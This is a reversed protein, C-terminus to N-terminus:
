SHDTGGKGRPFALAGLAYLLAAGMFVWRYGGLAAALAALPTAIVSFAGNIGWAWPLFAPSRGGFWSLGQPFPMGLALSPLAAVLVVLLRKAGPAWSLTASFLPMLGWSLLIVLACAGAAAAPAGRRPDSFAKEALLSGMGSFILMSALVLAFAWAPDGLYFTAREILAMEVALFGLGLCAFYGMGRFIEGGSLELRKRRILPLALVVLAFFLAQSLVAGNILMAIEPRPLIDMRDLVASIKQPRLIGFFFPRDFTAPSLDFFTWSSSSHEGRDLFAGLDDRLADQPGEGGSVAEEEFSVPPLDNWVELAAPDMGFFYATDFSRDSCFSRFHAVDEPTWPTPSVLIRANWSSRYVLIHRPPSPIGARELAAAVTAVAKVAYVTFEGIAVPLSLVGRPSLLSLLHAVGEETLVYKNAAGQDLFELSVDVVDFSAERPDLAYPPADKLTVAGLYGGPAGLSDKVLGQLVPDTELATVTSAGLAFAERLRFTGRSGLLLTRAGPRLAYPLSDLGARLYSLDFSGRRPLASLRDGDRYIGVADPPGGADLLEYNNSLDADLREGYSSVLLYLGEPTRIEREIRRDEVNLASALAKYPCLAPRAGLSAGLACLAVLAGAGGLVTSRSLGRPATLLIPPVLLGLFPTMLSFPHLLFLGGLTILAGAGAGVLDVMYLRPIERRGTLFSLGIFIGSVFFFPFLAVYYMGIHGLQDKWLVANQFELPNFPNLTVLVYGGAAAAPLILACIFLLGERHREAWASGLSLVVGSLAYGAMAMSIVWYGYESWNSLAFFRTLFIEFAISALSVFFLGGWARFRHSM